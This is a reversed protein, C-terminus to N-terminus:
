KVSINIRDGRKHFTNRYVIFLLNVFWVLCVHVGGCSNSRIIMDTIEVEAQVCTGDTQVIDCKVGVMSPGDAGLLPVQLTVDNGLEEVGDYPVKDPRIGYYKQLGGLVFM